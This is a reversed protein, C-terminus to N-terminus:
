TETLSELPSPRHEMRENELTQQLAASAHQTIARCRANEALKDLRSVIRRAASPSTNGSTEPPAIRGFFPGIMM